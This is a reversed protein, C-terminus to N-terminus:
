LHAPSNSFYGSQLELRCHVPSHCSQHLWDSGSGYLTQFPVGQQHSGAVPRGVLMYPSHIYGCRGRRKRKEQKKRKLCLLVMAERSTNGERLFFIERDLILIGLVANLKPYRVVIYIYIIM